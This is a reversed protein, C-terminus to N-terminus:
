IAVRVSASSVTGGSSRETIRLSFAGRIRRRSGLHLKAVGDRATVSDSDISRGGRSLVATAHDGDDAYVRAFCDVANRGIGAKRHRCSWSALPSSGGAPGAPGVGGTPGVPGIGGTSGTDGKAGKPGPIGIPQAATLWYVQNSGSDTVFVGGNGDSQVGTPASYWTNSAQGQGCPLPFSCAFGIGAITSIIGQTDVERIRGASAEAILLNGAPDLGVGAPNDVAVGTGTADVNDATEGGSCGCSNLGTGAFTSLVGSKVRRVVNDNTDAIYFTSGDPSVAVDSPGNLQGATAAAGDGCNPNPATGNGGCAVGTGAVTTIKGTAAVVERVRNADYDAIFLDGAHDLSLGSPGTLDAATAAGGDGCSTSAACPNGNGAYVSITGNAVRLVKGQGSTPTYAVYITSADPTVAIGSPGAILEPADGVSQVRTFTGGTTLTTIAGSPAVRRVLGNLGDEYDAIYLSGAADVATQYPSGLRASLANPGDGCLPKTPCSPAFKGAVAWSYLGTAYGAAGAPACAVLGVVCGAVMGLRLM